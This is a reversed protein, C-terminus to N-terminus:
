IRLHGIFVSIEEGARRAQRCASEAATRVKDRVEQRVSSLTFQEGSSLQRPPM